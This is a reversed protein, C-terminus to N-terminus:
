AAKRKSTRARSFTSSGGCRVFVDAHVRPAWSRRGTLEDWSSSRLGSFVVKSPRRQEWAQLYAACKVEVSIGEFEVDHNAWEIRLPDEIGLAKAVAFEALYGRANNM